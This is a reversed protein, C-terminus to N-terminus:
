ITDFFEDIFHIAAGAAASEIKYKCPFIYDGARDGFTERADVKECLEDMHEEIYAGVYGGIIIDSDFLIRVNHIGLALNDLYKNWLKVAGGDKERLLTFFQKLNGGAYQDLNTSRCVTDFCGHGGCYCREGNEPVVTMHGVEGSKQTNGEFIQNNIVAAGGVSNSLSLYFANCLEHDIWVEAYGATISDHFLRNKYPIYKAIQARTWGSFNLTLGYEVVEGDESIIGPVSIGVGLLAEDSIGAEEKVNRVTEGIEKLYSDDSLNFEREIRVRNIVDGSLNVAVCNIHHGTLYMGIAVRANKVYSYATANRGGTNQIKKSTDILNMQELYQLKQTITPLSFKLGLVIDQKSVSKHTRIYHYIQQSKNM